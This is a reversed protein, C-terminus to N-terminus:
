QWDEKNISKARYAARIQLACIMTENWAYWAAGRVGSLFESVFTWILIPLASAVIFSRILM